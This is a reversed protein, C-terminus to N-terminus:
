KLNKVLQLLFAEVTLSGNYGELNLNLHTKGKERIRIDM